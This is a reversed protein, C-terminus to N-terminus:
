RWRDRCIVNEKVKQRNQANLAKAKRGKMLCIASLAVISEFAIETDRVEKVVRFSLKLSDTFHKGIIKRKSEKEGQM